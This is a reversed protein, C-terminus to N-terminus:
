RGPRTLGLGPSTLESRVPAKNQKIRHLCPTSLEFRVPAKYDKRKIRFTSFIISADIRIRKAQLLLQLATRNAPEILDATRQSLEKLTKGNEKRQGRLEDNRRLEIGCGQRKQSVVVRLAGEGGELITTPTGAEGRSGELNYCRSKRGLFKHM